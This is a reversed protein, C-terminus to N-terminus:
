SALGLLEAFYDLYTVEEYVVAVSIATGNLLERREGTRSHVANEDLALHAVFYTSTKTPGTPVTTVDADISEIRGRMTEYEVSPLGSVTVKADDGVEVQQRDPVSLFVTVDIGDDTSAVSGIRDGATVVGGITVGEDLHVTGSVPAAVQFASAGTAAAQGRIDLEAIQQRLQTEKSASESLATADIEQAKLANTAIVNAIEEPTYGIAELSPRDARLQAKQNQVSTFQWYFASEEPVDRDFANRTTRISESFRTQLGLQKELLAKESAVTQKEADLEVSEVAIMRDGEAVSSGNPTSVDVIRGSVSSMVVTRNAGEVAGSGEVVSPRNTVSAWVLVVVLASAALAIVLFGFLPPRKEYLIRSDTLDRLEVTRM